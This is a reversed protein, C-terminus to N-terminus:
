EPTSASANDPKTPEVDTVVTPDQEPSLVPERQVQIGKAADLLQSTEVGLTDAADNDIERLKAEAAQLQELIHNMTPQLVGDWREYFSAYQTYIDIAEMNDNDDSADGSKGAHRAKLAEFNNQYASLDRALIHANTNFTARDDILSMLRENRISPLLGTASLLLRQCLGSLRNVDDWSNKAKRVQAQQQRFESNANDIAMVGVASVVPNLKRPKPAQNHM